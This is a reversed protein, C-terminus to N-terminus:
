EAPEVTVHLEPADERESADSDTAVFSRATVHWDFAVDSGGTVELTLDVPIICHKGDLTAPPFNADADGVCAQGASGIMLSVQEPETGLAIDSVIPEGGEWSFTTVLVADEAGTANGTGMLEIVITHDALNGGVADVEVHYRQPMALALTTSQAASDVEATPPNQPASTAISSFLGAAVLALSVPKRFM